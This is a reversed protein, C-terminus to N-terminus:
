AKRVTATGAETDFEISVCEEYDIWKAAFAKCDEREDESMYELAYDLVDPTKFHAYFKM